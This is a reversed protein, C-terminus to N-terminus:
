WRCPRAPRARRFRAAHSLRRRHRDGRAHRSRRLDQGAEVIVGREGRRQRELAREPVREGVVAHDRGGRGLRDRPRARADRDCPDGVRRRVRARQRDREDGAEDGRHRGLVGRRDVEARGALVDGVAHQDALERASGSISPSSAAIPSASAARARAWRTLGASPRV